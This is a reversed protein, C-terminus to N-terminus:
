GCARIASPFHDVSQLIASSLAWEPDVGITVLSFERALLARINATGAANGFWLEEAGADTCVGAEAAALQPLNVKAGRKLQITCAM